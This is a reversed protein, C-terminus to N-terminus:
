FDSFLSPTGWAKRGIKLGLIKTQIKLNNRSINISPYWFHNFVNGTAEYNSQVGRLHSHLIRNEGFSSLLSEPRFEAVM